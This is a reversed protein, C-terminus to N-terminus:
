LFRSKLMIKIKDVREYLIGRMDHNVTGANIKLLYPFAAFVRKYEIIKEYYKNVSINATNLIVSRLDLTDVISKITDVTFYLLLSLALYGKIPESMYSFADCVAPHIVQILIFTLGSWLFSYKLCIYGKINFANNSYDWWKCNFFKELLFGTIYELATVLVVAILVNIIVQNFYNEFHATIISSSEIILVAGFGYIPCFFGTLFGRNIIKKENISAFVSEMAWGLFSYITFYLMLDSVNRM